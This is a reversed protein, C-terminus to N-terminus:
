ANIDAELLSPFNVSYNEADRGTIVCKDVLVKKNKGAVANEFRASIAGIGIEDGAIVGDFSGLTEFTAATGGDYQKDSVVAGKLQITKPLVVGRIDCQALAYNGADTGTLAGGDLIIKKDKGVNKDAYRAGSFKLAVSDGDLVGNLSFAADTVKDTGDYVKSLVTASVTLDKPEVTLRGGTVTIDYKDDSMDRVAYVGVPSTKDADFVPALGKVDDAKDGDVFGTAEYIADPTDDGYTKVADRVKVTLLPKMVEVDREASLNDYGEVEASVSHKGPSAFYHGLTMSDSDSVAGRKVETGDVTWIVQEDGDFDVPSDFTLRLTGQTGYRIDGGTQIEAVAADPAVPRTNFVNLGILMLAIAFIVTWLVVSTLTSNTKREKVAEGGRANAAATPKKAKVTKQTSATKKVDSKGEAKTKNVNKTKARSQSQKSKDKSEM